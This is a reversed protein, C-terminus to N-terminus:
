EIPFSLILSPKGDVLSEKVNGELESMAASLPSLRGSWEGGAAASGSVSIVATPGETVLRITVLEGKERSEMALGLASFVARQLSFPNARVRIAEDPLEAELTCGALAAQRQALATTNGILATLDFSATQEDAAHAFRSFREMTQTGRAVQRTIRALPRKLKDPDLPKKRGALALVDELLGACEGVISLVNRMEHSVEASVRGFFALDEERLRLHSEESM